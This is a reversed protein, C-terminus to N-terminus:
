AGKKKRPLDLIKKCPHIALLHHFVGLGYIFREDSADWTHPDFEGDDKGLRLLIIKDLPEDPHTESWLQQYASLQIIHDAYVGNGTKLDVLARQGQVMAVIDLTGGYGWSRSVLSIESALLHFDVSDRWKGWAMYARVAKSRLDESYPGLDIPELNKVEREVMGHGLTGADAAKNSTERHNRGQLGEQNAWWLLADKSWGLNQGIVTTVSPVRVGNVRYVQTPIVWWGKKCQYLAKTTTLRANTRYERLPTATLACCKSFTRIATEGLGLM